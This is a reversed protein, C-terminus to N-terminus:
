QNAKISYSGDKKFDVEAELYYVDKIDSRMDKVMYYSEGSRAGTSCIFVIPKDTPLTKIKKELDDVPFNVASKFKGVKFEDADRVDILLISEPKEKLIKEFVAIDISGEEKGSKIASAMPKAIGTTGAVKKWEPFGGSFVKVNTHGLAVAKAASKHSLKCKYGGCYFVLLKAKDEPLQDTMKKFQSDPISIAGPIHGKDYKKRKPRSDVLLMDKKQDVQKKVFDVSVEAYHGKQKMWNPFGAAFVKVNKYGLKEAKYASKHSLKCKLGGCYFILLTNKNQPLRDAMKDFQSDPISVANPIHGKDYKARKPRADIIMVDDRSPIRVHQKVFEVDIIAHYKWNEVAAPKATEAKKQTSVCGVAMMMLLLSICTLRFVSKMSM